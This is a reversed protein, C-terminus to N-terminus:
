EWLNRIHTRWNMRLPGRRPKLWAGTMLWETLSGFSLFHGCTTRACGRASDLAREVLLRPINVGFLRLATVGAMMRPDCELFSAEHRSFDVRLDFDAIGSFKTKRVFERGLQELWDCHFLEVDCIPGFRNAKRRTFWRKRLAVAFVDGQDALLTMAVDEGAVYRQLIYGHADEQKLFTELGAMSEM